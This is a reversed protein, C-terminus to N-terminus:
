PGAALVVTFTVFHSAAPSISATVGGVTGAAVVAGGDAAVSTIFGGGDGAESSRVVQGAAPTVATTVSARAAWYSLVWAASGTATSTPTALSTASTERTAGVARQVPGTSSTGSYALLELSGKNTGGYGVSVPSSADSATAVKQWVTGSM